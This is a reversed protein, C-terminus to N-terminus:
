EGKLLRTLQLLASRKDRSFDFVDVALRFRSFDCAEVLVPVIVKGANNFYQWENVVDNDEVAAPSLVMLLVGCDHLASVVARRWDAQPAIDIADMWVRVGCERLDNDLEFAFIEDARAYAIFVGREAARAIISPTLTERLTALLRPDNPSQQLARRLLARKQELTRTQTTTPASYPQTDDELRSDSM